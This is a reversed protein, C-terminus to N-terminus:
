LKTATNPSSPKIDDSSRGGTNRRWKARRNQFWTKVQRDSLKLTFALMKRDDPTLYKQWLFKHELAKTQNTSFRVQNRRKSFQNYIPFTFPLMSNNYITQQCIGEPCLYSSTSFMKDTIQNPVVQNFYNKGLSQFPTSCYSTYKEESPQGATLTLYQSQYDLYNRVPLRIDNIREKDREPLIGTKTEIGVIECNSKENKTVNKLEKKHSDDNLIDDIRFSM